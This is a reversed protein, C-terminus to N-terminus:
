GVTWDTCASGTQQGKSAYVCATATGPTGTEITWHWTYNGSGNTTQTGQLSASTAPYGSAYTVSVSVTAGAVTHVSVTGTQHRNGSATVSM